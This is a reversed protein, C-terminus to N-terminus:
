SEDRNGRFRGMLADGREQTAREIKSRTFRERVGSFADYLELAHQALRKLVDVLDEPEQRSLVEDVTRWGMAIDLNEFLFYQSPAATSAVELLEQGRDRVFHLIIPGNRFVAEANGFSQSDPTSSVLEADLLGVAKLREEVSKAFPHTCSKAKM